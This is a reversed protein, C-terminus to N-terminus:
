PTKGPHVGYVKITQTAGASTSTGAVFLLRIRDGPHGGVIQNAALSPTLGKGVPQISNPWPNPTARYTVAPAGAAIQPFHIWDSWTLGQDPSTQIYVDLAGGTAGQLTAEVVFSEYASADFPNSSSPMAMAGAAAGAASPSMGSLDANCIM